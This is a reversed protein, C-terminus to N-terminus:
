REAAKMARVVPRLSDGKVMWSTAFAFSALTELWFIPRLRAFWAPMGVLQLVAMLVLAVIITWGCSRHIADSASKEATRADGRTFLVLSFVALAGFFLGAGAFHLISALRDGLVCQSLTCLVPMTPLTPALAIALAGLSAARGAMLDSLWEGPRPRYGQYSWLFVATASLTGVFIERMPTYYYDSMTLQLGGGLTVGYALLALPLFYGLIGVARRVRLFSLVLDNDARQEAGTPNDTM